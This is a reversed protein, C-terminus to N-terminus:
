PVLGDKKGGLEIRTKKEWCMTVSAPFCAGSGLIPVESRGGRQSSHLELLSTVGHVDLVLHECDPSRAPM